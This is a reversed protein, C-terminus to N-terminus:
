CHPLKQRRYDREQPNRWYRKRCALLQRLMPKPGLTVLKLSPMKWSPSPIYYSSSSSSSSSSASSTAAQGELRIVRDREQRLLTEYMELSEDLFGSLDGNHAKEYRILLRSDYGTCYLNSMWCLTRDLADAVDCEVWGWADGREEEEEEEEEGGEVGKSTVDLESCWTWELSKQALFLEEVGSFLRLAQCAKVAAREDYADAGYLLALRRVRRLDVADLQGVNWQGGDLVEGVGSWWLRLYLVDDRFCFWTRPGATRTRFALEYGYDMLVQRSEVCTHLLPPIPATSYLISERTFHWALKPQDALWPASIEPVDATPTWPRYPPKSSSFGYSDLTTQLPPPAPPLASSSYINRPSGPNRPVDVNWCERPPNNNSNNNVPIHNRWNQAFYALSPHIKLNGPIPVKDGFSALFEDYTTRNPEPYEDLKVLRPPTALLYIVRRIEPPFRPFPHFTKPSSPM